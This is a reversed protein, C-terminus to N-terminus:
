FENSSSQYYQQSATIAESLGIRAGDVTGVVFADNFGLQRALQKVSKAEEYSQFTGLMVKEFGDEQSASLLVTEQTYDALMVRRFAGIQVHFGVPVSEGDIGRLTTNEDRLFDIEEQLSRVRAELITKEKSKIMDCGVYWMCSTLFMCMWVYVTRM